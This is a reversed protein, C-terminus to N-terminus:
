WRFIRQTTRRRRRGRRISCCRTGAGPRRRAGPRRSEPRSFIVAWAAMISKGCFSAPHGILREAAAKRLIAAAALFQPGSKARFRLGSNPPSLLACEDLDVFAPACYEPIGGALRVLM